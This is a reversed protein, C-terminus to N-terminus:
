LARGGDVTVVSGTSYTLHTACAAIARAVDEASAVRGLPISRAVRENFAADRGPVFGTDVVGPSVTMVRVQPALARALARGTVEIAAKAACYAINSGVGNQAAISSVNVVLGGDGEALLPAFARITAFVGRYNVAMLDDILADDLAELDAHPIAKTYGALNVLIDARGCREAVAAALATLTASDRLDAPLTMHGDGPLAAILAKAAAPNRHHTVVVQAGEAALLRACAQGIGGTGGVLVAVQGALTGSM